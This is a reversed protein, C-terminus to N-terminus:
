RTAPQGLASGSAVRLNNNNNNTAVLICYFMKCHLAAGCDNQLAVHPPQSRVFAGVVLWFGNGLLEPLAEGEEVGGWGRVRERGTQRTMSFFDYIFLICTSTWQFRAAAVIIFVQGLGASKRM